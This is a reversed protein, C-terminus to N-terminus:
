MSVSRLYEIDPTVGLGPGQPVAIYGEKMAITEQTTRERLPNPTRDFEFLPEPPNLKGPTDQMAAHCHLGAAIAVNTGWVHPICRINWTSALTAIRMFETFGGCICVDPQLIDVCRRTILERFAFRTAECEGAAIRVATSNRLEVYGDYDEPPVPEEFWYVDLADLERAIIIADAADYACNADVMLKMEWGIAERIAELIELDEEMSVTGIKYKMGTFGAEKHALAEEILAAAPDDVKPRYLGSAYALARDRYAGGLLKYVPLGTAKGKIDWLAIDVASLAETFIGKQSHHRWPKHLSDWIVSSQFPDQGVVLPACVTKVTTAVAVPPGLAEGVGSIGEDTEVVVLTNSRRSIWAQSFAYAPGRVDQAIPFVQIDTVKM